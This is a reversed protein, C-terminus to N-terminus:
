QEHLVLVYALCELVGDFRVVMIEKKRKLGDAYDVIVVMVVVVGVIVVIVIVMM